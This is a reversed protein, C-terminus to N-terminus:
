EAGKCIQSAFVRYEAQLRVSFSDAIGRYASHDGVSSYEQLLPPPILKLSASTARQYRCSSASNESFGWGPLRFKPSAIHRFDLMELPRRTLALACTPSLSARFGSAVDCKLFLCFSTAGCFGYSVSWFHSSCRTSVCMADLRRTQDLM